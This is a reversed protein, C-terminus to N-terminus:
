RANAYEDFPTNELYYLAKKLGEINDGLHGLGTNCGSCLIGRVKGNKHDHDINMRRRLEEIPKSCIACGGGQFALLGDFEEMSIGYQRRIIADEREFGSWNHPKFLECDQSKIGRQLQRSDRLHTEGCDACKLKYWIHGASDRSDIGVVVGLVGQYQNYKQRHPREAFQRKATM